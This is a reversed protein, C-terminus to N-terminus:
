FSFAQPLGSFCCPRFPALGSLRLASCYLAQFFCALGLLSSAGSFVLFPCPPRRKTAALALGAGGPRRRAWDRKLHLNLAAHRLRASAAPLPTAGPRAWGSAPPAGCATCPVLAPCNLCVQLSRPSTSAQMGLPAGGHRAKEPPPSLRWPCLPKDHPRRIICGSVNLLM